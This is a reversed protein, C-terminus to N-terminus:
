TTSIEYHFKLPTTTYVHIQSTFKKGNILRSIERQREKKKIQELLTFIWAKQLVETTMQLAVTPFEGDQVRNLM